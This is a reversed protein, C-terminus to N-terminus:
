VKVMQVPIDHDGCVPPLDGVFRLKASISQPTLSRGQMACVPCRYPEHERAALRDEPLVRICKDWDVIMIEKTPKNYM